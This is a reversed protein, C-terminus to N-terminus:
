LRIKYQSIIYPQSQPKVLPLIQPPKDYSSNSRPQVHLVNYCLLMIEIQIQFALLQKGTFFNAIHNQEM